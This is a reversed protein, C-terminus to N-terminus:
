KRRRTSRKGGLRPPPGMAPMRSGPSPPEYTRRWQNVLAAYAANAENRKFKNYAAKRTAAKAAQENAYLQKTSAGVNKWNVGKVKKFTARLNNFRANPNNLNRFHKEMKLRKTRNVNSEVANPPLPKRPPVTSLNIPPMNKTLFGYYAPTGPPYPNVEEVPAATTVANTKSEEEKKQLLKQLFQM